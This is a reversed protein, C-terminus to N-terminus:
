WVKLHKKKCQGKIKEKREIERREEGNGEAERGPMKVEIQRKRPEEKENEKKDAVWTVIEECATEDGM